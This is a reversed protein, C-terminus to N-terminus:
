YYATSNTLMKHVIAGREFNLVIRQFGAAAKDVLNTTMAVTKVVDEGPISKMGLFWKRQQNM